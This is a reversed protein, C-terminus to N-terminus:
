DVCGVHPAVRLVQGFSDSMNTEIWAGWTPHSAVDITGLHPDVPKLGRVGRPTRGVEVPTHLSQYLKM